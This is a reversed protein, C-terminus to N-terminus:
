PGSRLLMALEGDAGGALVDIEGDGDVDGAALLPAATAHPLSYLQACPEAGLFVVQMHGYSATVLDAAGDGDVDVVPGLLAEGEVRLEPLAQGQSWIRLLAHQGPARHGVVDRLGDGDVDGIAVGSIPAKGDATLTQVAQFTSGADLELVDIGVGDARSTALDLRGPAGTLEGVAAAVTSGTLSEVGIEPGFGGAGDGLRLTIPAGDFENRTLLDVRGDGDFDGAHVEAPNHGITELVPAAFKADQGFLLSLEGAATPLTLALDLWGDGDFDAAALRQAGAALGTFFTDGTPFGGNGDGFRVEVVGTDPRAAVLDLVGDGDVDVLAVASPTGGLTIGSLTLLKRECTPIAAVPYCWGPSGDCEEGEECEDDAYCEYGQCRTELEGRLNPVVSCCGPYWLCQGDECYECDGDCGTCEREPGTESTGVSTPTGTETVPPDTTPEGSSATTTTTASTGATDAGPPLPGCATVWVGAALWNARSQM